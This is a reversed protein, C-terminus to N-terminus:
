GRLDVQEVIFSKQLGPLADCRRRGDANASSVRHFGTLASFTKNGGAVKTQQPAPARPLVWEDSRPQQHQKQQQEIKNEQPMKHRQGFFLRARNSTVIPAQPHGATSRHRANAAAVNSDNRSTVLAGGQGCKGRRGAATEGNEYQDLVSNVMGWVNQSLDTTRMKWGNFRATTSAHTTTSSGEQLGSRLSSRCPPVPLAFSDRQSKAFYRQLRPNARMGIFERHESHEVHPLNKGVHVPMTNPWRGSPASQTRKFSWEVPDSEKAPDVRTWGDVVVSGSSGLREFADSESEPMRPTFKMTDAGVDSVGSAARSFKEASDGYVGNQAMQIAELHRRSRASGPRSTASGSRPPTSRKASGKPWMYNPESPSIEAITATEICETVVEGSSNTRGFGNKEDQLNSGKSGGREAPAAAAELNPGGKGHNIMPGDGQLCQQYVDRRIEICMANDTAVVSAHRYEGFQTLTNEGFFSGAKFRMVEKHEPGHVVKATGHIFVIMSDAPDGERVVVDDELYNRWIVNKSLLRRLHAPVKCLMPISGLLEEVTLNLETYRRDKDAEIKARKISKRDRM